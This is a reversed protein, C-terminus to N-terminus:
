SPALFNDATVYRITLITLKYATVNCCLKKKEKQQVSRKLKNKLKIVKGPKM